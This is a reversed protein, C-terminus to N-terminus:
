STALCSRIMRVAEAQLEGDADNAFALLRQQSEPTEIQSLIFLAREKLDTSHNGSLVKDVIPLAREPPASILAELATMRLSERDEDASQAVTDNAFLLLAAAVIVKFSQKM